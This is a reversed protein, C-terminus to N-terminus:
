KVQINRFDLLTGMAQQLSTQANAYTTKANLEAAKANDLDSQRQLVIFNTSLGGTYRMQEASYNEQALIRSKETALISKEATQLNRYATKVELTIALEQDRLALEAGRRNAKASINSAKASKNQIPMAFTLNLSYGPFRFAFLDSNVPSYDASSMASGNYNISADLRPKLNSHSVEELLKTNEVENRRTILETRNKLATEIADSETVSIKTAVPSDTLEINEPHEITSYVYRFFADTANQLTAEARILQVEVQAVRAESSTIEILALAGARVRIENESLQKKALEMSQHVNTLDMQANVLDWYVREVSAVQDQLARRFNADANALGRRAIVLSSTTVKTGFNRLLSQSYSFSMGGSYPRLNITSRSPYTTYPEEILTFKAESSSGSYRPSYSFQATGGWTFPKSISASINRANSFSSTDQQGARYEGDIMQNTLTSSGSKSWSGNGTLGLNWDFAGEERLTGAEMAGMWTNRQIEISLNKSLAAQIADQLSLKVVNTSQASASPSLACLCLAITPIMHPRFM